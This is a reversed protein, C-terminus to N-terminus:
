NFAAVPEIRPRAGSEAVRQALWRAIDGAVADEQGKHFFHGGPFRLCRSQPASPGAGLGLWDEFAVGNLLHDQEGQMALLPCGVTDVPFRNMDRCLALDARVVKLFSDMVVTNALIEDPIGGLAQLRAVLDDDSQEHAPWDTVGSQPPRASVAVVGLPPTDLARALHSAVHAGMSYGLLALPGQGLERLGPMLDDVLLDIEAVLPTQWRMGRGPYEVGWVEIWPPIAEALSLLSTITSGAFGFMALRLRPPPNGAQARRRRNLLYYAIVSQSSM